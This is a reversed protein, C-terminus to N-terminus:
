KTLSPTRLVYGHSTRKLTDMLEIAKGTVLAGFGFRSRVADVARTLRRRREDTRFLKMQENCARVFGSLVIGVRRLNVRRTHIEGFLAVAHEYIDGDLNGPEPMRRRRAAGRHDTYRIKVEVARPAVGLMRAARAARQALYSLMAEVYRRDSTENHFTTERSITHPIERAEVVASDRGRAREFLAPGVKGFLAQLDERSLARFESVTRIGLGALVRFTAHGVGPLEGVPLAALTREAESEDLAALGDPKAGKTALRACLRNPGIGVTVALGTRARVRWRFDRGVAVLDPWLLETGSMDLYAEDLYTEIDPSFERCLGWIEEAFARYVPQSGRLIVVDPCLRRAKVLNMGARLGRARAEYSCSAIVGSGVVVPRGALDPNLLQEVSPFFADIDVHFVAKRM